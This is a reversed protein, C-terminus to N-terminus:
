VDHQVASGDQTWDAHASHQRQQEYHRAKNYLLVGIIVVVTGFGGLFTIENGYVLVSLWIAIARKVTNWVSCLVDSHLSVLEVSPFVDLHLMVLVIMTAITM